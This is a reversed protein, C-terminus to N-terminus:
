LVPLLLTRMDKLVPLLAYFRVTKWNLVIGETNRPYPDSGIAVYSSIVPEMKMKVSESDDRGCSLLMVTAIIYLIKNM